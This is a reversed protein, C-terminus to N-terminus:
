PFQEAQAAFHANQAPLALFELGDAILVALGARRQFAAELGM